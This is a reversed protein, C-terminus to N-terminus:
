GYIVEDLPIDHEEQPLNEVKQFSYGVGVKMADPYQNLFIDYYGSGYGLRYNREDFGLAPVIIIEIKGKYELNNKPYKTKFKGEILDDFSSFELHKLERNSLTKPVIVKLQHNLAKKILSETKVESGISLYTHITKVNNSKIVQWVKAMILSSREEAEALSLDDRLAKLKKRWSFKNM